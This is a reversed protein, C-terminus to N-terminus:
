DRLKEIQHAIQELGYKIERKIERLEDLILEFERDDVM